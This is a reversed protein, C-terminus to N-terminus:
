PVRSLLHFPESIALLASMWGVPGVGSAMGRSIDEYDTRAIQLGSSTWGEDDDIISRGM